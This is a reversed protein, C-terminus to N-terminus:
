GRHYEPVVAFFFLPAQGDNHLSHSHGPPCYHCDGARLPETEGDCVAHGMGQLIFLIEGNTEHRHPGISAGPPLEGRMIKGNSDCFMQAHTEGEGGYFHPIATQPMTQFSIRM